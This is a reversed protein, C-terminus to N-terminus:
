KKRSGEPPLCFLMAAFGVAVALWSVIMITLYSGQLDYLLGALPAASSQILMAVPSILGTVGPFAELAMQDLDRKDGIVGLIKKETGESEHIRAGTKIIYNKVNEVEEESIRDNLVIIM